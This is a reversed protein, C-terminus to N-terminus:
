THCPHSSAWRKKAGRASNESHTVWEINEFCYGKESDIRDVSPALKRNYDSAVYCDWLYNFSSSSLGWIYFDDKTIDLSKGEYLHFKHKQVGEVRSKMNRYLRMLFGKKTKEYAKTQKNNNAKRYERQWALRDFTM